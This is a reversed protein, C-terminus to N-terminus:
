RLKILVQNHDKLVKIVEELKQRAEGFEPNYYLAKEFAAKAEYLSGSQFKLLGKIYFLSWRIIDGNYDYTAKEIYDSAKGFDKLLNMYIQCAYFNYVTNHPDWELAKLIHQEAVKSNGQALAMKYKFHEVESQFPHIGKYWVIGILILIVVPILLTKTESGQIRAAAVWGYSRLYFGETLGMMLATMFLTSNIRFPFFFFATLLIAVVACSTAAAMVRITQEIKEDHIVKWAHSFLLILFLVIV